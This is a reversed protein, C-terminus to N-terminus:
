CLLKIDLTGFIQRPCLKWMFTIQVARGGLQKDCFSNAQSFFLCSEEVKKQLSTIKPVVKSKSTKALLGRLDRGSEVMLITDKLHWNEHSAYTM